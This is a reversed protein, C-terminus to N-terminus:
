NNGGAAPAVRLVKRQYDFLREMELAQAVQTSSLKAALKELRTENCKLSGHSAAVKCWMYAQVYDSEVGMGESYIASLMCQAEPNDNEAARRCWKYATPYDQPVGDGATYKQALILQAEAHGQWAAMIYWNLAKQPDPQLGDGGREYLNALHFQARALGKNAAKEWLEAAKNIDKAVGLGYYYNSGSRYLMEATEGDAKTRSQGKAYVSATLLLLLVCLIRAGAVICDRKM